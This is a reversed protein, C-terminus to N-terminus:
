GQVIAIGASCGLRDAGADLMALADDKTRVGGSAKVQMPGAHKRLLAVAQVSAGGAPHFGTSTKVFDCGSEQAAQCGAAIRAEGQAADVGHLLAATELIVKVVVKPSVARCAKVIEIFDARAADVDEQLLHPIHVVFDVEDAGDKVLSAAEIALVTPKMSGLPFGAVGCALAASGSLRDAVAKMHRGNVCASAFGHEAAEAAVQLADNLSSDAKLVTHDIKAALEAANM